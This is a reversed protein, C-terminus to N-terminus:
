MKGFLFCNIGITPSAYGSALRNWEACMAYGLPPKHATLQVTVNVLLPGESTNAHPVPLHHLRGGHDTTEVYDCYSPCNKM